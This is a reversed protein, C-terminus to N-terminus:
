DDIRVKEAIEYIIDELSIIPCEIKQKLMDRIEYFSEVATVIIADVNELEEKPYVTRIDLFLNKVNRDIAYVVEMNRERLEEILRLGIHSMGYIAIRRYNRQALYEAINSNKQKLAMWTTMLQFLYIYKRTIGRYGTEIESCITQENDIQKLQYEALIMQGEQQLLRNNKLRSSAGNVDYYSIIVSIGECKYGKSICYLMWEYDARIKYGEKFYHNTLAERPSFISQHCPMDGRYIKEKLTGSVKEFDQIQKLGDAYVLCTKGYYIVNEDKIHSVVKEIVFKNYFTDGANLFFIYHGSARTIGRNMANYIGFDKESYYKINEKQLYEQITHITGDTSGGDIIIYEINSYTQKCVSEITKRLRCNENYCITIVSIKLM